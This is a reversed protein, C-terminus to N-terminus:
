PAPLRASSCDRPAPSGTRPARDAPSAPSASRPPSGTTHASRSPSRSTRAVLANPTQNDTYLPRPTTGDSRLGTTTVSRTSFRPSVVQWGLGRTYPETSGPLGSPGVSTDGDVVCSWPDDQAPPISNLPSRRPSGIGVRQSNYGYACM